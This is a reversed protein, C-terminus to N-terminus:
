VKLGDQRALERARRSFYSRAREVAVERCLVELARRFRRQAEEVRAKHVRLLDQADSGLLPLLARYRLRL